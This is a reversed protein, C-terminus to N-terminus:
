VGSESIVRAGGFGKARRHERDAAEYQERAANCKASASELARIQAPTARNGAAEVATTRQSLEALAAAWARRATEHGM